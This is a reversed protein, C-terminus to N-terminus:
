AAGATKSRGFPALNDTFTGGKVLTLRRFDGYSILRPAYYIKKEEVGTTRKRDDQQEDQKM